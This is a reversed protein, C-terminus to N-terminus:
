RMLVKKVKEVAKRVAEQTVAKIEEVTMKGTQNLKEIGQRIEKKMEELM